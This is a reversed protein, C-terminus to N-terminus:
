QEAAGGFWREGDYDDFVVQTMNQTFYVAFIRKLDEKVALRAFFGQEKLLKEVRSISPLIDDEKIFRLGILFERASATQIQIQDLFLLDKELLRRVADNMETELRAKLVAKNSEFSERSDMCLIEVSEVGKLLNMLGNVKVQIASQSLVAVNIPKIIFYVIEGHSYTQVSHATLSKADILRRTSRPPSAGRGNAGAPAPRFIKDRLSM